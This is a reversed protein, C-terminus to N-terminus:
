IYLFYNNGLNCEEDDVETPRDMLNFRKRYEKEGDSYTPTYHTFSKENQDAIMHLLFLVLFLSSLSYILKKKSFFKACFFVVLSKLIVM